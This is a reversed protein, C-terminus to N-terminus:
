QSVEGTDKNQVQICKQSMVTIAKELADLRKNVDRLEVGLDQNKKLMGAEERKSAAQVSNFAITGTLVVALGTIIAAPWIHKTHSAVTAIHHDRIHSTPGSYRVNCNTGCDSHGCHSMMSSFQESGGVPLPSNAVKPSRRRTVKKIPSDAMRLPSFTKSLFLIACRNKFVGHGGRYFRRLSYAFFLQIAKGTPTM